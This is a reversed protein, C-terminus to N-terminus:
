TTEEASKWRLGTWVVPRERVETFPDRRSLGVPKRTQVKEVGRRTIMDHGGLRASFTVDSWDRYGNERLWANFTQLLETSLVCADRDFEMYETLFGMIADTDIRWSFTDEIVKLPPEPMLRGAEYWRVAGAVVWALCAERVGPGGGAVRARFADDRPFTKEFRVLALRRWTGHDTERIQPTYNSMLFLSHTCVWETNDKFVARAKMKTKGLVEKLRPVSLHAAEPTEDIVAVRAGFLTMLDTPHDSPSARLLKEPVLVMHDGLAGFLGALLTSKGNSGGGQGIPLVDDSTPWGTAAQGFRVQMWEMVDEDLCQLAQKWDASEAGPVYDVPTIKTLMLARDHDRLEGTRLDVVGNGVNLLDHHSDFEEAPRALTGRMLMVTSRIAGASLMRQVNKMLDTDGKTLAKRRLKLVVRRVAECCSEEVRSAWRKGTWQMWGLGSNWCWDNELGKRAMREALYADNYQAPFEPWVVLGGFDDAAEVPEQLGGGAVRDRASEWKLLNDHEGWVDDVPAHELLWERGAEETLGTWGSNVMEWVVCASKFIGLDWGAGTYWPVALGALKEAEVGLLEECAPHLGDEPARVPSDDMYFKRDWPAKEEVGYEEARDLWADVALLTGEEVVWLYGGGPGCSPRHMFREPEKSGADFQEKGLVEMLVAVLLRYEEGSVERDLPVLLRWRPKEASHSWTTHMALAGELELRVDTSFGAGASDADLTLVSRHVVARSNRHLGVCDPNGAHGKTEQLLGAVYGGCEKKGAPRDLDLWEVFEDWTEAVQQKWHLEKLGRGVAYEIM